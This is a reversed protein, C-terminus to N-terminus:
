TVDGCLNLSRGHIESLVLYTFQNNHPIKHYIILKTRQEWLKFAAQTSIEISLM